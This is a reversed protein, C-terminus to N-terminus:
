GYGAEELRRLLMSVFALHDLCRDPDDTVGFEHGRPNRIALMAGAFLFKYGEQESQDSGNKMPTLRLVPVNGGFVKMMLSSGFDANRSHRQIEKDLFKMAEFTAQAYHGDDFLTKVVAPVRPHINRVQFPHTSSVEASPSDTFKYASRVIAEFRGLDSEM